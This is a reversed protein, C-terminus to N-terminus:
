NPVSPTSIDLACIVYGCVWFTSIIPVHLSVRRFYLLLSLHLAHFLSESLQIEWVQGFTISVFKGDPKLVKHIGELMKTVNDVTTPNPNWPDGSDM